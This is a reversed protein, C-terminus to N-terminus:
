LAARCRRANNRTNLKLKSVLSVCLVMIKFFLTLTFNRFSWFVLTKAVVTKLVVFIMVNLCM